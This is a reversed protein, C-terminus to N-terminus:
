KVNNLAVVKRVWDQCALAINANSEGDSGLSLVAGADITGSGPTGTETAGNGSSARVTVPMCNTARKRLENTAANYRARLSNERIKAANDVESAIAKNRECQETLAEAQLRLKRELVHEDYIGRGWSGIAIGGVVLALIGLLRSYSGVASIISFIGM